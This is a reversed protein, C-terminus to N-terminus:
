MVNNAGFFRVKGSRGSGAKVQRVVVNGRQMVTGGWIDLGHNIREETVLTYKM